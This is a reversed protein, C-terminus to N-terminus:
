WSWCTLVYNWRQWDTVSQQMESWTILRQRLEGVNRVSNQYVSEQIVGTEVCRTIMMRCRYFYTMLSRSDLNYLGPPRLITKLDFYCV